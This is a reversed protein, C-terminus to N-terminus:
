RPLTKLETILDEIYKKTDPAAEVLKFGTDFFNPDVDEKSWISQAVLSLSVSDPLRDPKDMRLHFETNTLIPHESILRFGATTVDLLHGIVFDSDSDFVRLSSVLKWRKKVRLNNQVDLIRNDPYLNNM